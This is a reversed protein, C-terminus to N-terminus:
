LTGTAGCVSCRYGSVVDVYRGREEYHVIAPHYDIRIIDHSTMYPENGRERVHALCADLTEFLIGEQCKYKAYVPSEWAPVDIIPVVSPEWRQEHQAVWDHDHGSASSTDPEGGDNRESSEDGQSDAQADLAAQQEETLDASSEDKGKEKDAFWQNLAQDISKEYPGHEFSPDKKEWATKLQALAHASQEETVAGAEIRTLDIPLVAMGGDGVVMDVMEPVAYLSGDANLPTIFSFTYRGSELSVSAPKNPAFALYREFTDEAGEESIEAPGSEAKSASSSASSSSPSASNVSSSWAGSPAGGQSSGVDEVRKIYAILPTSAEESWGEATARLSVKSAQDFTSSVMPNAKDEVEATMGTSSLETRSQMHIFAYIGAAAVAFVVILAVLIGFVYVVPSRRAPAAAAVLPVGYSQPPMPPPIMPQPQPQPMAQAQPPVSPAEPAVPQPKPAPPPGPPAAAPQASRQDGMPASAPAQSQGYPAEASAVPQQPRPREDSSPQAPQQPKASAAFPEAAAPRSPESSAPGDVRPVSAECAARHAANVDETTAAQTTATTAARRFFGKKAASKGAKKSSHDESRDSSEVQGVVDIILPNETEHSM